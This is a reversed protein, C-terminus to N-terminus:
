VNVNKKSFQAVVTLSFVSLSIGGLLSVRCFIVSLMNNHETDNPQTDNYEVYHCLTMICLTMLKFSM